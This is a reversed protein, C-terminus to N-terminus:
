SGAISKRRDRMTRASALSSAPRHASLPALFELDEDQTM